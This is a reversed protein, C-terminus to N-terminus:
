YSNKIEIISWLRMVSAADSCAYMADRDEHWLRLCGQKMLANAEIKDQYNECIIDFRDDDTTSSFRGRPHFWVKM